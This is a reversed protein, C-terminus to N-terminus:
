ISPQLLQHRLLEIRSLAHSLRDEVVTAKTENKSAQYMARRQRYFRVDSLVRSYEENIRVFRNIPTAKRAVGDNLKAVILKATEYFMLGPILVEQSCSPRIDYVRGDPGDKALIDYKGIRVSNADLKMTGLANRLEVDVKSRRALHSATADALATILQAPM